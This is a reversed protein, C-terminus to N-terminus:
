VTACADCLVCCSARCWCLVACVSILCFGARWCRMSVVEVSQEACSLVWAVSSAEMGGCATRWPLLVKRTVESLSEASTIGILNTTRNRFSGARAM